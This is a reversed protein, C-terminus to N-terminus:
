RGKLADIEAQLKKETQRSTFLLERFKRESEYNEEEVESYRLAWLQVEENLRIVRNKVVQNSEELALCKDELATQMAHANALERELMKVNTEEQVKLRSANMSLDRNDEVLDVLHNHLNQCDSLFADRIQAFRPHQTLLAHKLGLAHFIDENKLFM